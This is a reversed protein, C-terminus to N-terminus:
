AAALSSIFAELDAETCALRRGVRVFRPGEGRSRWYNLTSVPIRLREAVEPKTFLRTSM